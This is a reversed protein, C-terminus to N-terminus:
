AITEELIKKIVAVEEQKKIIEEQKKILGQDLKKQIYEEVKTSPRKLIGLKVM